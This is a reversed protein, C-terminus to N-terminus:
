PTFVGAVQATVWVFLLLLAISGGLILLNALAMLLLGVLGAVAAAAATMWRGTTELKGAIPSLLSM